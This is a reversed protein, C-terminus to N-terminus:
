SARQKTVYHLVFLWCSKLCGHLVVLKVTGISTTNDLHKLLVAQANQAGGYLSAFLRSILAQRHQRYHRAFVPLCVFLHLKKKKKQVRM